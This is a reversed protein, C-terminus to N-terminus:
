YHVAGPKTSAKVVNGIPWGAALRLHARRTKGPSSVSVSITVAKALYAVDFSFMRILAHTHPLWPGSMPLDPDGAYGPHSRGSM